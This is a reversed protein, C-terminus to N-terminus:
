KKIEYLEIYGKGYKGIVYDIVEKLQEKYLVKIKHPFYKLKAELRKSNYNKVEIYEDSVLFDPYFLSKKNEFEYEFGITNRKFKIKHDLNYIVWALEWSSDCWFGKYWGSKGRSSGEKFGGSISLWCKQHYKKPKSKIYIVDKNCVPCITTIRDAIKKGLRSKGILTNAKKVKDSNKAAISKKLKDEETWIKGNACSRSCFYKDKKPYDVNYERVEFEKNCKKCNVDFIKWKEIKKLERKEISDISKKKGTCQHTNQCSTNCYKNKVEKNCNLCKNM